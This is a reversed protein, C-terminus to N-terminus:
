TLKCQKSARFLDVVRRIQCFLRLVHFVFLAFHTIQVHESELQWILLAVQCSTRCVFHWIGFSHFASIILVIFHEYHNRMIYFTCSHSSLLFCVENLKWAISFVICWVHYPSNKNETECIRNLYKMRAHLYRSEFFFLNRLIM